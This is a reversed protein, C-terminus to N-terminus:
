QLPVGAEQPPIATGHPGEIGLGYKVLVARADPLGWLERFCDLVPKLDPRSGSQPFRMKAGDALHFNLYRM